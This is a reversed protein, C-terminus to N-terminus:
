LPMHMPAKSLTTRLTTLRPLGGLFVRGSISVRMSLDALVRLFFMDMLEIDDKEAHESLEATLEGSLKMSSSMISMPIVECPWFRAATEEAGM